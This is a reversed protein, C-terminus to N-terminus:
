KAVSFVLDDHDVSESPSGSRACPEQEIGSGVNVRVAQIGSGILPFSFELTLLGTGLDTSSGLYVWNIRHSNVTDAYFFNAIGLECVPCLDRVVVM